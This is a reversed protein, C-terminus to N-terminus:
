ETRTRDTSRTLFELVRATVDEVTSGETDVGGDALAYYPAREKHLEALKSGDGDADMLPRTGPTTGARRRAEEVGVRLWVSRSGPPLSERWGPRGAWGGGSAVVVGHSSLVEGAVARELTRFVEEGDTAFIRAITRGARKEIERDLDIFDWGLREAALRGVSTKGAGMFGVLVLREPPAGTM